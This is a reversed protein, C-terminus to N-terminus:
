SIRKPERPSSKWSQEVMADRKEGSLGKFRSDIVRLRIAASNYRYADVQEFGAAKLVDEVTKTEPTRKANWKPITLQSM